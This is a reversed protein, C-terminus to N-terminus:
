KGESDAALAGTAVNHAQEAQWGWLPTTTVRKIERLAKLLPEKVRKDHEAAASSLDRLCADVEDRVTCSFGTDWKFAVGRFEEDLDRLAAVLAAVQSEAKEARKKEERAGEMIKNAITTRERDLRDVEAELDRIRQEAAERCPKCDWRPQAAFGHPCEDLDLTSM